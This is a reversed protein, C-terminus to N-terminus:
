FPSSLTLYIVGQEVVPGDIPVDLLGDPFDLNTTCITVEHRRRAQEAALSRLVSTPGGYRDSM